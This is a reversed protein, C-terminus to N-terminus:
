PYQSSSTISPIISPRPIDVETVARSRDISMTLKVLGCQSNSPVMYIQFARAHAQSLVKEGKGTVFGLAEGFFLGGMIDLMLCNFEYAM